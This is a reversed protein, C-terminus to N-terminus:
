GSTDSAEEGSSEELVIDLDGEKVTPLDQTEGDANDTARHSAAQRTEGHEELLKRIKKFGLLGALDLASVTLMKVNIGLGRFYKSNDYVRASTDIGDCELLLGVIEQYGNTVAIILATAGEDERVWRDARIGRHHCRCKRNIMIRERAHDLLLKVTETNNNEVSHLFPTYGESDPLDIPVDSSLVRAVVANDGVIAAQRFQAISIIRHIVDPATRPVLVHLLQEHGNAAAMKAAIGNGGDYNITAQTCHQAEVLFQVIIHFGRKAAEMLVTRQRYTQNADLGCDLVLFRICSLFGHKAMLHLLSRKQSTPEISQRYHKLTRLCLTEDRTPLSHSVTWFLAGAHALMSPSSFIWDELDLWRSWSFSCRLFLMKALEIDESKEVLFKSIELRNHDWISRLIRNSTSNSFSTEVGIGNSKKVQFSELPIPGDFREAWRQVTSLNGSDIAAKLDISKPDDLVSFQAEHNADRRTHINHVHAALSKPDDFGTIGYPCEDFPCFFARDHRSQHSDRAAQVPFGTHFYDCHVFRCKFLGSGHYQQLQPLETSDKLRQTLSDLSSRLRRIFTELGPKSDLKQDDKNSPEEKRKSSGKAFHLSWLYAAQSLADIFDETGFMSRPDFRQAFSPPISRPAAKQFHQGLFHRIETGLRRVSSADHTALKSSMLITLHDLWHSAAYDFFVYCGNMINAEIVEDSLSIDVHGASLYSLCITTLNLHETAVTDVYRKTLFRFSVTLECCMPRMTM